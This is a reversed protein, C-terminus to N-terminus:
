AMKNNSIDNIQKSAERKVIIEFLMCVSLATNIHCNSKQTVLGISDMTTRFYLWIWFYEYASYNKSYEYEIPNGSFFMKYSYM